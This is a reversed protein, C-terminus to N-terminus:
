QPTPEENDPWHLEKQIKILDHTKLAVLVEQPLVVTVSDPSCSFDVSQGNIELYIKQSSREYYLHFTDSYAISVKTSM